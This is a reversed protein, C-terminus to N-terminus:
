GRRDAWSQYLLASGLLLMCLGPITAAIALGSAPRGSFAWGLLGLTGARVSSALLYRPGDPAPHTAEMVKVEEGERLREFDPSLVLRAITVEDGGPLRLSVVREQYSAEGRRTAFRQGVVQKSLVTASAEVSSERFPAQLRYAELPALYVGLLLLLAGLVTLITAGRAAKLAGYWGSGQRQIVGLIPRCGRVEM